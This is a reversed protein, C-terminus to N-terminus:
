RAKAKTVPAEGFTLEAHLRILPGADADPVDLTAGAPFLYERDEVDVRVIGKSPNTIKM